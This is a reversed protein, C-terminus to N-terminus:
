AKKDDIGRLLGRHNANVELRATRKREELHGSAVQVVEVNRKFIQPSMFCSPQAFAQKFRLRRLLFQLHKFLAQQILSELRQLPMACDIASQPKKAIDMSSGGHGIKGVVYADARAPDDLKEGM